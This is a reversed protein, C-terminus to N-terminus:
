NALTLNTVTRVQSARIFGGTFGSDLTGTVERKMTVTTTCGKAKDIADFATATHNFVYAGSDVIKTSGSNINVDTDTSDKCVSTVSIDIVANDQKPTWAMSIPDTFRFSQESLPLIPEFSDPLAVKSNPADEKNDRIFALTFESGSAVIDMSGEYDIDLIDTDRQLDISTSGSTVQLKDGSALDVNTGSSGGVNLEVNIDTKSGNSTIEIGAWIGSTDISDSTVEDNCATLVFLTGATIILRSLLASTM